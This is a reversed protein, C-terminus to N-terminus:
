KGQERMWRKTAARLHRMDARGSEKVLVLPAEWAFMVGNSTAAILEYHAPELDGLTIQDGGFGSMASGAESMPPAEIAAGPAVDGALEDETEPPMEPEPVDLAWTFPESPGGPVGTEYVPEGSQTYGLIPFVPQAQKKEKIMKGITGPLAGSEVLPKFKEPDPAWWLILGEENAVKGWLYCANTGETYDVSAYIWDGATRLYVRMTENSWRWWGQPKTSTMALVGNTADVITLMCPGMPSRWTGAWKDAQGTLDLPAQGVPRTSVVTSCGCLHAALLAILIWRVHTEKGPQRM